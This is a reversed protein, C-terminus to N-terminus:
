PLVREFEARVLEAGDETLHDNDLYLFRRGNLYRVSGDPNTFARKVNIVELGPGESAMRAAIQEALARSPGGADPRIAPFGLGSAISESVFERLNVRDRVDLAPVQPLFVVEGGWSDVERVLARLDNAFREPDQIRIEWRDICVVARPKWRRLAELRAQNFRTAESAGGVFRGMDEQFLAPAGDVGFFAVPVGRERCLRDITGSFMLAHSSGLVVVRPDGAGHQRVIGGTKWANRGSFEARPFEVDYYRPARLMAAPAATGANFYQGYSVPRDFLGNPDALPHVTGIITLAIATTAALGGALIAIRRGRPRSESRMPTEVLGYLLVAVAISLIGAGVAAIRVDFQWDDALRKALTIV